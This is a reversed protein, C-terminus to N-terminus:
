TSETPISGGAPPGGGWGLAVSAKEAATEYADLAEREDEPADNWGNYDCILM